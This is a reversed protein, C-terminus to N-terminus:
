LQINTGSTSKSKRYGYATGFVSGFLALWFAIGVSKIQADPVKFLVLTLAISIVWAVVLGLLSCGIGKLLSFKKKTLFFPIAAAISFAAIEIVLLMSFRVKRKALPPGTFMYLIM